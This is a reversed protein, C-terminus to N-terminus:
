ISSNNVSQEFIANNLLQWNIYFWILEYDEKLSLTAVAEGNFLKKENYVNNVLHKLPAELWRVFPVPFGYKRQYIADRKFYQCALERLVPKVHSDGFFQNPSLQSSIEIVNADFFPSIVAKNYLNAIYEMEEFHKQVDSGIILQQALYRYLNKQGKLHAIKENVELDPINLNNGLIEKAKATYQIQTLQHFFDNFSTNKITSLLQGREPKVLKLLDIVFQPVYRLKSHWGTHIELRKMGNSGFLTDAAEGYVVAQADSPVARMMAMLALSSYHRIPERKLNILTQMDELLAQENITVLIPTINLTEAFLKATALEPNEGQEFVPTILYIKDFTQKALAALISSDVGGSLFVAVCTYHKEAKKLSAILANKTESVLYDMDQTLYSPKPLSFYPQQQIIGASLQAKSAFTLRFCNSFLTRGQTIWRYKFCEKKSLSNLSMSNIPLLTQISSLVLQEQEKQWYWTKAGYKDNILFICNSTILIAVFHGDVKEFLANDDENIATALEALSCGIPNGDVLLVSENTTHYHKLDLTGACKLLEKFSTIEISRQPTSINTINNDNSITLRFSAM